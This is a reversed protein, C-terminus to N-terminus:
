CFLVCKFYLKISGFRGTRPLQIGWQMLMAQAQKLGWQVQSSFCSASVTHKCRKRGAPLEQWRRHAQSPFCSLLFLPLFPVMVVSSSCWSGLAILCELAMVIKYFHWLGQFGSKFFERVFHNYRSCRTLAQLQRRAISCSQRYCHPHVNKSVLM